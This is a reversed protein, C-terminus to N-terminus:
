DYLDFAVMFQMEAACASLRSLLLVSPSVLLMGLVLRPNYTLTHYNRRRGQYQDDRAQRRTTLMQHFFSLLEDVSQFLAAEGSVVHEVRGIVNEEAIDTGTRFQVVFAQRAPLPPTSEPRLNQESQDMTGQLKERHTVGLVWAALFDQSLKSIKEPPNM